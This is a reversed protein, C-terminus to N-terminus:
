CEEFGLGSNHFNLIFLISAKQSEKIVLVFFFICYWKKIKLANM